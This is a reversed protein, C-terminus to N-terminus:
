GMVEADNALATLLLPAKSDLQGAEVQQRFRAL